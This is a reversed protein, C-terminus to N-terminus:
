ASVNEAGFRARLRKVGEPTIRTSEISLSRLAPMRELIPICADTVNTGLLILCSLSKLNTLATLDKDAFRYLSLDIDRVGEAKALVEWPVTKGCVSLRVVRGNEYTPSCGAAHWRARSIELGVVLVLHWLFSLCFIGLLVGLVVRVITYEPQSYDESAPVSFNVSRVLAVITPTVLVLNVLAHPIRLLAAEAFTIAVVGPFPDPEMSGRPLLWQDISFVFGVVIWLLVFCVVLGWAVPFYRWPRLVKLWMYVIVGFFGGFLLATIM